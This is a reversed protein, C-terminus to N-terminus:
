DCGTVWIEVVHLNHWHRRFLIALKSVNLSLRRANHLAFTWLRKLKAWTAHSEDRTHQSTRSSFEYSLRPFSVNLVTSSLLTCKSSEKKEKKKPFSDYLQDSLPVDRQEGKKIKKGGAITQKCWRIWVFHNSTDVSSSHNAFPSFSTWPFAQLPSLKFGTM